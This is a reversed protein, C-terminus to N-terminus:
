LGLRINGIIELNFIKTPFQIYEDKFKPTLIPFELEQLLWFGGRFVVNAYLKETGYFLVVDNEFVIDDGHIIVGYDVDYSDMSVTEWCVIDVQRLLVGDSTLAFRSNDFRQNFKDWVRFKL